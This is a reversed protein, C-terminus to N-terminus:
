VSGLVLSFVTFHVSCASRRCFFFANCNLNELAAAAAAAAVVVLLLTDTCASKKITATHPTYKLLWAAVVVDVLLQM